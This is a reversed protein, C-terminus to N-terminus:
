SREKAQSQALSLVTDLSQRARTAFEAPSAGDAEAPAEVAVPIGDPLAALLEPLPLEGQGPLLRAARAEHMADASAPGAGPAALPADCLQVYSILAPDVARLEDLRVGCRRVHLADVLVGGGGSRAAIAVADKLTRVSRYAMFEVVARIGYPAAASALAAFSDSLRTLDPDECIANVFRAGLAAAAELVPRYDTTRAGLRVAEADLVTIGTDACRRVTEALMPSGPRVPWPREDDTAPAIRLGVSGFGASAAVTVLDPPSVGLLTLHELGIEGTM